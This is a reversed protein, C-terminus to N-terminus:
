NMSFGETSFAFGRRSTDDTCSLGSDRATCTFGDASLSTNYPLVKAEEPALRFVAQRLVAFRPESGREILITDPPVQKHSYSSEVTPAGKVGIGAGINTAPQCGAMHPDGGVIIACQWRGTPTTFYYGDIGGSNAFYTRADAVATGPVAVESM